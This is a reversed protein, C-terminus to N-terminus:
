YSGPLSASKNDIEFTIMTKFLKNNFNLKNKAEKHNNLTKYKEFGFLFSIKKLFTNKYM